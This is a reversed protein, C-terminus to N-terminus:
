FKLFNFLIKAQNDKNFSNEAVKFGNLGIRKAEIPNSLANRMANSFSEVSGPEAFYVTEGNKLYDPLEGVATACVPKGTALYEGLKTPFGGQAQHSDPRPLVLLSANILIGPIADRPVAEKYFVRDELKLRRIQEIHGPSDYHWFGFLYLNFDPFDHSIQGFSDILVNIGDKLNSMVGVYAIYPKKLESTVQPDNVKFRELDVTMPLHLLKTGQRVSSSYHNLLTKTIFAIGDVIPLFSNEFFAQQKDAVLRQLFNGKNVNHIDLFEVMEYFYFYGKKKKLAAVARMHSLDDSPWIVAEPQNRLLRIFKKRIIIAYIMNLLYVNIRRQWRTFNNIPLLYHYEIKGLKGSKGQTSKEERSKYGGTIYVTVSANLNVLGKILSYIRNSYASNTIFPNNNQLLIIKM